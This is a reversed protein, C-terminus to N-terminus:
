SWHGMADLAPCPLYTARMRAHGVCHLCCSGRCDSSDATWRTWVRLPCDYVNAQFFASSSLLSDDYQSIDMRGTCKIPDVSLIRVLDFHRWVCGFLFPVCEWSRRVADRVPQNNIVSVVSASLGVVILGLTAPPSPSGPLTSQRTRVQHGVWYFPLALCAIDIGWPLRTPALRNAILGVGATAWPIWLNDEKGVRCICWFIVHVSFLCPLFWLPGCHEPAIGYAMSRLPALVDKSPHFLVFPLAWLLYLSTGWFAWPILLNHTQYKSYARLPQDLYTNKVLFGSLFFFLPMHFSMIYSTLIPDKGPAHGYCVMIIATCKLVDASAVREGRISAQSTKATNLM